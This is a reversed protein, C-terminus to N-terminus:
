KRKEAARGARSPYALVGPTASRHRSSHFRGPHLLAEGFAGRPRRPQQRTQSAAAFEAVAAM